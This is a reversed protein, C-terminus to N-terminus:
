APATATHEDMEEREDGRLCLAFLWDAAGLVVPSVGWAAPDRHATRLRGYARAAEDAHKMLHRALEFFAVYAVINRPGLNIPPLFSVVAVGIMLATTAVFLADRAVLAKYVFYGPLLVLLLAAEVGLAQDTVLFLVLAVAVVALGLARSRLFQRPTVPPRPRTAALHLVAVMYLLLPLLLFVAALSTAFAATLVVSVVAAALLAWKVRRGVAGVRAFLRRAWSPPKDAVLLLVV